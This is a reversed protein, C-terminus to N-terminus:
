ADSAVQRFKRHAFLQDAKNRSRWAQGGSSKESSCGWTGSSGTVCAVRDGSATRLARERRVLNAVWRVREARQHVV